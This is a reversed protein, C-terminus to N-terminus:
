VVARFRGAPVLAGHTGLVQAAVAHGVRAAEVPDAGSVRASIYGANFSDGAGTADVVREVPVCAVAVAEPHERTLVLAPEGGNKVVVEEAGAALYRAATAAGDHDGFYPAEDAHTPLV